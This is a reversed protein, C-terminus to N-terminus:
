ADIQEGQLATHLRREPMGDRTVLDVEWGLIEELFYQTAFFSQLTPSRCFEVLINIDSDPTAEDQAVDGFLILSEVGFREHLESRCERLRSIVESRSPARKALLSAVVASSM